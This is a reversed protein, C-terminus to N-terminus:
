VVITDWQYHGTHRLYLMIAHNVKDLTIETVFAFYIHEWMCKSISEYEKCLAHARIVSIQM